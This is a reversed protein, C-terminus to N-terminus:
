SHIILRLHSATSRKSSAKLVPVPANYVFHIVIILIVAVFCRYNFAVTEKTVRKVEKALLAPPM